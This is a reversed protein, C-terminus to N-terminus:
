FRTTPKLKILGKNKCVTKFSVFKSIRFLWISVPKIKNEGITQSNPSHASKKGITLECISLTLYTILSNVLYLKTSNSIRSSKYRGEAIFLRMFVFIFGYKSESAPLGSL